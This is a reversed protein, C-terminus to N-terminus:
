MQKLGEWGLKEKPTLNIYHYFFDIYDLSLYNVECIIKKSVFFAIETCELIRNNVDNEFLIAIHLTYQKKVNIAVHVKYINAGTDIM